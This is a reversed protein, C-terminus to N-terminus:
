RTAARVVCATKRLLTLGVIDYFVAVIERQWQIDRTNQSNLARRRIECMRERLLAKQEHQLEPARMLHYYLLSLIHETKIEVDYLLVETSTTIRDTNELMTSTGDTPTDTETEANAKVHSSSQNEEEEKLIYLQMNRPEKGTLASIANKLRFVENEVHDLHADIISGDLMKVKVIILTVETLLGESKALEILNERNLDQVSICNYDSTSIADIHLSKRQRKTRRCLAEVGLNGLKKAVNPPVHVSTKDRSVIFIGAKVLMDFITTKSLSKSVYKKKM